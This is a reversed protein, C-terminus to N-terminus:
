NACGLCVIISAMECVKEIKAGSLGESKVDWLLLHNDTGGSVLSCERGSLYAALARCNAVVHECYKKFDPSTVQMVFWVRLFFLLCWRM